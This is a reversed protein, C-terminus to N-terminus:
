RALLLLLRLTASEVLDELDEPDELQGPDELQAAVRGAKLGNCESELHAVPLFFIKFFSRACYIKRHM